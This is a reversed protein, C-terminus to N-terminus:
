EGIESNLRESGFRIFLAFFWCVVFLGYATIFPYMGPEAIKPEELRNAHIVMQMITIMTVLSVIGFLTFSKLIYSSTEAKKGRALWASGNPVVYFILNDNKFMEPVLIFISHNLALILAYVGFLTPKSSWSDAFGEGNFHSSIVRPLEPFFWLAQAVAGFLCIYYIARLM